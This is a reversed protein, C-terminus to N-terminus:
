GCKKLDIADIIGQLGSPGRSVRRSRDKKIKEIAFTKACSPLAIKM